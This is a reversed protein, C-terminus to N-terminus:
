VSDTPRFLFFSVRCQCVSVSVSADRPFRKPTVSAALPPRTEYWVGERKAKGPVRIVFCLALSDPSM